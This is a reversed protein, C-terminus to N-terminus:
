EPLPEIVLGLRDLINRFKSETGRIYIRTTDLRSHGLVEAVKVIDKEQEYLCSAFLKRFNHPFVRSLAVKAEGALKKMEKWINSRDLPNGYRSIFVPGSTIGEKETYKRLQRCLDKTLIVKRVKGKNYIVAIGSRVSEATVFQLESVRIGTSCLCILIYYLRLKGLELAEKLLQKYEKRSMHREEEQFSQKQVPYSKIRLDYWEKYELYRNVTDIFSNISTMKYKGCERLYIKFDVMLEKSLERGDSFAVLKKVDRVYKEITARSMEGSKLFLKYSKLDEQTIFRKKM